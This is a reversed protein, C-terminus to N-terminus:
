GLFPEKVRMGLARRAEAVVDMAVSCEIQGCGHRENMAELEAALRRMLRETARREDVIAALSEAATGLGFLMDRVPGILDTRGDEQEGAAAHALSLAERAMNLNNYVEAPNSLVSM